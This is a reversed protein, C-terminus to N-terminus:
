SLPRGSRPTSRSRGANDSVPVVTQDLRPHRAAHRREERGLQHGHHCASRPRKSDVQAVNVASNATISVTGSVPQTVASGDVKLANTLQVQDTAIVIRQTGADKAGSNTAVTTGNLQKLNTTLGGAASGPARDWTAGNWLM